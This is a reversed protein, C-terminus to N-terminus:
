ATAGPADLIQVAGIRWGMDTEEMKYDLIHTFGKADTIQVKQWMAGGRERLELYRVEAPRWVMPYGQTVMRQFNQPSQFLQQLSPTAYTFATAFDDAKFAEFQSNITGEIETSQAAAGTVSMVALMLAGLMRLFGTRM